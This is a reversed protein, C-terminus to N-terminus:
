LFNDADRYAKILALEGEAGKGFNGHEMGLVGKYGKKHLHKFINRYNIEGTGPEKRGPNDGIQIYAIEDWCLDMVPILNGTNRQMHYIDYLIKCSPSNVAKCVEYSQEATRLFLEPTDSLPELVMVIGHPELIEAGRRLADVVNATQIGMPLSRDFFGPVVTAWKANVRKATEVSKKCTAIFADKFEQKGTTLSTKWNNGTDVVFVGMTMNKQALLSGIKEQMAVDRGLLGNDEISRFGQDYMYKIQDLFDAGGNNKFMGDHPAYDLNFPKGATSTSTSAAQAATTVGGLALASLGALAGQQLFNRRKM